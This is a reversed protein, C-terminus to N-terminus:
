DGFFHDHLQCVARDADKAMVLFSLNIESAGGSIVLINVDKLASFVEGAIGSRERFQRGVV